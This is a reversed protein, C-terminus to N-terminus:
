APTGTTEPQEQRFTNPSVSTVSKFTRCFHTLNTYGVRYAIQSIQLKSEQLLRKAEAIRITNLYQRFSLDYKTKIVQSIKNSPIGTSDSMKSLSMSQDSFHNGLYEFIIKEDDAMNEAIPLKEYPIAVPTNYDDKIRRVLIVVGFLVYYLLLVGSLIGASYLGNKKQFRLERVSMRKKVGIEDSGEEVSLMGLKALNPTGVEKETIKYQNYWWIPTQFEKLPISYTHKDEKLPLEKCLYRWTMRDEMISFGETFVQLILIVIEETTSPNFSITLHDYDSINIFSQDQRVIWQFGAFPYINKDGITYEIDITSSSVQFDSIITASSDMTDAPDLYSTLSMGTDGPFFSLDKKLHFPLMAAFIVAPFSLLFWKSTFFSKLM